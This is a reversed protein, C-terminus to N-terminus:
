SRCSGVAFCLIVALFGPLLDRSHTKRGDLHSPRHREDTRACANFSDPQEAGARALLAVSSLCFLYAASQRDNSFHQCPRGRTWAEQGTNM